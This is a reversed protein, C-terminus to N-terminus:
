SAIGGRVIFKDSESEESLDRLASSRMDSERRVRLMRREGVTLLSITSWGFSGQDSELAFGYTLIDLNAM